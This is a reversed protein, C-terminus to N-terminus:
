VRCQSAPAIRPSEHLAAGSASKRIISSVNRLAEGGGQASRKADKGQDLRIRAFTKRLDTCFSPTYRFSADLISKM